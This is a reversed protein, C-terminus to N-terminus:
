ECGCGFSHCGQVTLTNGPVCTYSVATEINGNCDTQYITVCGNGVVAYSYEDGNQGTYNLVGCIPTNPVSDNVYIRKLDRLLKLGAQGRRIAHNAM